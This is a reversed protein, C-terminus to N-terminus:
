PKHCLFSIVKTQVRWSMAWDTCCFHMFYQKFCKKACCNHLLISKNTKIKPVNHLLVNM